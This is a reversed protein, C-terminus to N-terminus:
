SIIESVLMPITACITGAGLLIGVLVAGISSVLFKVVSMFSAVFLKPRYPLKLVDQIQKILSIKEFVLDIIIEPIKKLNTMCAIAINKATGLETVLSELIKVPMLLFGSIIEPLIFGPIPPIGPIQPASPIPPMGPTENKTFKSIDVNKLHQYGPLDLLSYSPIEPLKPPIQPMGGMTIGIQSLIWEDVRDLNQKPINKLQEESLIQPVNNDNILNLNYLVESKLWRKAEEESTPLPLKPIPLFSSIDLIGFVALPIQGAINLSNGITMGFTDVFISHWANNPNKEFDQKTLSVINPKEAEFHFNEPGYSNGNELISFTSDIFFKRVSERDNILGAKSLILDNPPM